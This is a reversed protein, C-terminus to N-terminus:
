RRSSRRVPCKAGENKREQAGVFFLLGTKRTTKEIIIDYEGQETNNLLIFENLLLLANTCSFYCSVCCLLVACCCMLTCPIVWLMVCCLVGVRVIAFRRRHNLRFRPSIRCSVCVYLNRHFAVLYFGPAIRRFVKKRASPHTFLCESACIDCVVATCVCQKPWAPPHDRPPQKRM